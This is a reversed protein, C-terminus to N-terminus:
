KTKRQNIEDFSEPQKEEFSQSAKQATVLASTRETAGCQLRQKTFNDDFQM